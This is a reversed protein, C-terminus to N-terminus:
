NQYTILKAKIFNAPNNPSRININEIKLNTTDTSLHEIANIDIQPFSNYKQEKIVVFVELNATKRYNIDLDQYIDVHNDIVRVYFM